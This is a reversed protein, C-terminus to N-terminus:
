LDITTKIEVVGGAGRAGYISAEQGKLVKLSKIKQGAIAEAANNFGAGMPMGNVMFLPGSELNITNAGGRIRVKYTNGSQSVIIGSEKRLLFALRDEASGSFENAQKEESSIYRNATGQNAKPSCSILLILLFFYINKM